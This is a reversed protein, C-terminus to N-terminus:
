CRWADVAAAAVVELVAASWSDSYSCSGGTGVVAVLGAEMRPTPRIQPTPQTKVLVVVVAAM